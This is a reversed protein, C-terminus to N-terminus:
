YWALSGLGLGAVRCGCFYILIALPSGRGLGVLSRCVRRDSRPSSAAVAGNWPRFWAPSGSAGDTGFDADFQSLGVSGRRESTSPDGTQHTMALREKINKWESGKVADLAYAQKARKREKYVQPTPQLQTHGLPPPQPTPIPPM